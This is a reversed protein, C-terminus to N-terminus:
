APSGAGDQPPEAAQPQAGQAVSRRIETIVARLTAAAQTFGLGLALAALGMTGFLTVAPEDAFLGLLAAVLCVGGLGIAAFGTAITISASRALGGTVPCDGLMRGIHLLMWTLAGVTSLSVIFYALYVFTM